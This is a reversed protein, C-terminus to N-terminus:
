SSQNRHDVHVDPSAVHGFAFGKVAELGFVGEGPNFVKWPGELEEAYTMRIHGGQPPFFLPLIQGSPKEMWDPVRIMSPGAISLYPGSDAERSAEFAEEGIVDVSLIPNGEFREARIELGDVPLGASLILFLVSVLRQMNRSQVHISM